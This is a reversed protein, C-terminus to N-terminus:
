RGGGQFGSPPAGDGEGPSGSGKGKGGGPPGTPAESKSIFGDGNKDLRSFADDPGPFEDRSVKGDADKDFRQTFDGGSQSAREGQPASGTGSEVVGAGKVIPGPSVEAFEEYKPEEVTGFTLQPALSVMEGPKLGEIIRIMRDNDLGIKVKRSEIKNGNVIYVTTDGGVRIVAQVPIYIAKKHQEVVIEANCNMGTRLLDTNGTDDLYVITDYIKLDPNMFASQADPLPAISAVRGLFREGPLADVTVEVPLGISVKDLSAEYIGIEANSGSTTPLHILDQRERVQTGEDLPEVTQRRHGGQQASTAYIVMGDAPAYIKTKVIQKEVKALKDKQREFESEKAKLNAEAQVVDASAKRITRELAMGAQSVDSELQALRRKHTFNKLLNLDNQAMELDLTKKKVSLEDAQLETQSIYREEYLKRSWELNDQARVVEEEALTIQSEEEKLQNPYEGQLYKELDQKAFNYTLKAKDVDSQVQNKVVALNERASVFAADANQVKIQQDIKQDLLSSSDLEILLDGKEVKTGEDVLSIISTKGEVESKLIIQERAQIAGSETVSIRLPGEKVTFTPTNIASADDGRFITLRLLGFGVVIIVVIIWMLPRGKM